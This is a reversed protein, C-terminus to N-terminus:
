EVTVAADEVLVEYTYGFGFDRDTAVRGRILVTDGVSATGDTTVTLDAVHGGTESGDRLHIWNRGMIAANAKVVKGRVAVEKGALEAAQGLVEAVTLGGEAKAIDDYSLDPAQYRTAAGQTPGAPAGGGATAADKAQGAAAGTGAGAAGGILAGLPGGVAGGVAGGIVAGGAAGAATNGTGAGAAGAAGEAAGVQIANVFYIADFTRDLTSSHFGKMEMSKVFSVEDGVAVATPPGAAWVTAGAGEVRVYTYGGSNMTEVVKGSFKEVVSAAAAAPDTSRMPAAPLALAAPAAVGVALACSFLAPVLVASRIM